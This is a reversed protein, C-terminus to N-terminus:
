LDDWWEIEDVEQLVQNIEELDFAEPYNSAEPIPM